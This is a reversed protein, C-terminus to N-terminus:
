YKSQKRWYMLLFFGFLMGGLHAWHAVNDFQFNGVGMFLEAFGYLFVFYKAKIPIPPFLLMLEIEPFTMGFALLIGFVAGSAGITIFSNYYDIQYQNIWEKSLAVARMPDTTILDNYTVRFANFHNVADNSTPLFHGNIFANLAEPNANNLYQVVSSTMESLQYYQVTLQVLGAGIGTVLYYLLFRKSGFHEELIRGFMYLAFMNFFIHTFGGHLFMYTILQIPSFMQSGLVHLGLYQDIYIHLSTYPLLLGVVYFLVNIIILNKVVPPISSLFSNEKFM